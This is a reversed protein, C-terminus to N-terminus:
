FHEAIKRKAAKIGSKIDDFTDSSADKVENLSDSELGV